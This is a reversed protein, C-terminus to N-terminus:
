PEYRAQEGEPCRALVLHPKRFRKLSIRTVPTNTALLSAATVPATAKDELAIQTVGKAEKSVLVVTETSTQSDSTFLFQGVGFPGGAFDHRIRVWDSAVNEVTSHGRAVEFDSSFRPQRPITALAAAMERQEPETPTCVNLVSVKVPPNQNSPTTQQASGAAALGLMAITLATRKVARM